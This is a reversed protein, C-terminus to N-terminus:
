NNQPTLTIASIAGNTEFNTGYTLTIKPTASKLDPVTITPTSSYGAGGSVLEYGTIVGDKVLANAVAPKTKWLDGRPRNYRYYNSVKNLHDDTVGYKGLAGMLAAKNKQAEDPTPGVSPDAPHVHSFADRFVDSSVELAAAILVVPRGGDRPDTVHGGSFVVPVRTVGSPLPPPNVPSNTDQAALLCVSAALTLLSLSFANPIKM